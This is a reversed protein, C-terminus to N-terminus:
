MKPATSVAKKGEDCGTRFRCGVCVGAKPTPPFDERKADYSVVAGHADSRAHLLELEAVDHEEIEDIVAYLEDNTVPTPDWREGPLLFFPQVRLTRRLKNTDLAWLCYSALQKRVQARAEDTKAGTKWDILIFDGGASLALDYPTYIRLGISRKFRIKDSAVFHPLNDSSTTIPLWNQTHTQQLFTWAESRQFELLYEKLSDLGSEEIASRRGTDLHHALITGTGHPRRGGRMAVAADLSSKMRREFMESATTCLDKAVTQSSVFQRLALSVMEHTMEGIFLPMTKVRRLTWLVDAEPEGDWFYQFFFARKCSKFLRQRSFSWSRVRSNGM